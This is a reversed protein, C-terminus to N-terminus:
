LYKNIDNKNLIVEAGEKILYNSFYSYKCYISGPVVLVNKGQELFLDVINKTYMKKDYKAQPIICINSFSVILETLYMKNKSIEYFNNPVFIYLNNSNKRIYNEVTFNISFINKNVVYINNYNDRKFHKCDIEFGEINLISNWKQNNIYDIFIGYIYEGYKNFDEKHIYIIKEKLKNTNGYMFLCIPKNYMNYFKNKPFRLDEIHIIEINQNILNNYIKLSFEKLNFSTLQDILKKSLIINNQVLINNLKNKQKSIVYLNQVSHFTKLLRIYTLYNMEEILTIWVYLYNLNDYVIEKM